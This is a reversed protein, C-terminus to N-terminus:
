ALVRRGLQSAGVFGPLGECLGYMCGVRCFAPERWQRMQHVVQNRVLSGKAPVFGAPPCGPPRRALQRTNSGEPWLFRFATPILSSSGAIGRDVRAREM